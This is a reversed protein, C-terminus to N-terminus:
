MAELFHGQIWGIIYEQALPLRRFVRVLLGLIIRYDGHREALLATLIIGTAPARLPMLDQNTWLGHIIQAAVRIHSNMDANKGGLCMALTAFIQGPKTSGAAIDRRIASFFVVPALGIYTQGNALLKASWEAYSDTDALGEDVAFALVWQLWASRDVGFMRAWHRLRLDDVLLFLDKDKAIFIEDLLPAPM